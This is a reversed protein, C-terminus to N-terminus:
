NSHSCNSEHVRNAAKFSTKMEEATFTANFAAYTKLVATYLSEQERVNKSSSTESKQRLLIRGNFGITVM